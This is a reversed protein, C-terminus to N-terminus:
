GDVEPWGENIQRRKKQATMLVLAWPSNCRAESSKGPNKKLRQPQRTLTSRSPRQNIFGLFSVQCLCKPNLASSSQQDILVRANKHVDWSCACSVFYTHWKFVKYLMQDYCYFHLNIAQCFFFLHELLCVPKPMAALAVEKRQRGTKKDLQSHIVTKTGKLAKKVSTQYTCPVSNLAHTM